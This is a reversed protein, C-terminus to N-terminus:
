RLHKVINEGPKQKSANSYFSFQRWYGHRFIAEFKKQRSLLALGTVSFFWNLQLPLNYDEYMIEFIM